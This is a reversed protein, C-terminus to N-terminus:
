FVLVTIIHDENRDQKNKYGQTARREIKETGGPIGNRNGYIFFQVAGIGQIRIDGHIDPSRTPLISVVPQYDPVSFRIHFLRTTRIANTGRVFRDGPFPLADNTQGM